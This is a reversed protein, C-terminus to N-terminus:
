FGSRELPAMDLAESASAFAQCVKVGCARLWECAARTVADESDRSDGRPPWAVGLAGPITQVLAAAHLKGDSDRAVFLGTADPETRLLERCREAGDNFLLRCAPLLEHAAALSVQFRGM